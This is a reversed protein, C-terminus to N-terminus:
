NFILVKLESESLAGTKKAVIKGEKIVVTTPISMIKHEVALGSVDKDVDIELFEVEPETNETVVRNWTPAYAKCPGCWEAHFRIVKTM